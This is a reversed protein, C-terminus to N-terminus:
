KDLIAATSIVSCRRDFGLKTRLRSSLMRKRGRPIRRPSVSPHGDDNYNPYFIRSYSRTSCDRKVVRWISHLHHMPIISHFLYLVTFRISSYPRPSSSILSHCLSPSFSRSAEAATLREGTAPAPAPALPTTRTPHFDIARFLSGWPLVEGEAVRRWPRSCDRTCGRMGLRSLSGVGM